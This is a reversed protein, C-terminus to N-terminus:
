AVGPNAFESLDIEIDSDSDNCDMFRVLGPGGRPPARAKAPLEEERLAQLSLWHRLEDASKGSAQKFLMGKQLARRKLEQLDPDLTGEAETVGTNFMRPDLSGGVRLLEATLWQIQSAQHRNTATLQANEAALQAADQTPVAKPGDDSILHPGGENSRDLAALCARSMAAAESDALSMRSLFTRVFESIAPLPPAQLCLLHLL